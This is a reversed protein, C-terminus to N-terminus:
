HTELSTPKKRLMVFGVVAVFLAAGFSPIFGLKTCFQMVLYLITAASSLSGWRVMWDFLHFTATQENIPM